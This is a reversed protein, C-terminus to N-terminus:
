QVLQQQGELKKQYLEWWRNTILGDSQKVDKLLTQASKIRSNLEELHKMQEEVEQEEVAIRRLEDANLFRSLGSIIDSKQKEDNNQHHTSLYSDAAAAKERQVKLEVQLDDIQQQLSKTKSAL